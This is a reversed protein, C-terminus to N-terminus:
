RRSNLVTEFRAPNLNMMMMACRTVRARELERPVRRACRMRACDSALGNSVSAHHLM